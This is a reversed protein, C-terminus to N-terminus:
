CDDTNEEREVLGINNFLIYIILIIRYVIHIDPIMWTIILGYIIGWIDVGLIM